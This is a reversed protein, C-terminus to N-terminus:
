QNISFDRLTDWVKIGRGRYYPVGYNLSSDKFRSNLAKPFRKDFQWNTNKTGDLCINKAWVAGNIYIDNKLNKTEELDIGYYNVIPTNGNASLYPSNGLEVKWIRGNTEKDVLVAEDNIFNFGRLIYTNSKSNWILAMNLMLNLGPDCSECRSGVGIIHLNNMSSTTSSYLDTVYPILDLNATRFYKPRRDDFSRGEPDNILAYLGRSNIVLKNGKVPNQYFNSPLASTSFTTDIAHIFGSFKEESNRGTSSIFFTNNPLDQSKLNIGGLRSCELAQKQSINPSNTQDFLITLNEPKGSGCKPDSGNRHCIKGGHSIDVSGKFVLTLPSEATTVIGFFANKGKVILNDIYATRKSSKYNEWGVTEFFRCNTWRETSSKPTCAIEGLSWPSAVGQSTKNSINPRNPINLPQVWFGGNTPLSRSKNIGSLLEINGCDQPSYINKRWIISGSKDGEINLNGLYISNKDLENEGASIFAFGSDPITSTVNINIRLKNISTKVNTGKSKTMGEILFSNEGAFETGVYDSSKISFSQKHKSTDNSNIELSNDLNDIFNSAYSRYLGWNIPRIPESARHYTCMPAVQRGICKNQDSGFCWDGDPWYLTSLNNFQGKIFIGPWEKGSTGSNFIPCEDDKLSSSCSKSLWFYNYSREKSNNFFAKITNIGSESANKSQMELSKFRITSYRNITASLLGTLSTVMLIALLLIQPLAFGDEDSKYLFFKYFTKM